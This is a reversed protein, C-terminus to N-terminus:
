LSPHGASLDPRPHATCAKSSSLGPSSHRPSEGSGQRARLGSTSARHHIPWGTGVPSAVMSALPLLAHDGFHSGISLSLLGRFSLHVCGHITMVIGVRGELGRRVRHGRPRFRGRSRDNHNTHVSFGMLTAHGNAPRPRSWHEIRQLPLSTSGPEALDRSGLSSRGTRSSRRM